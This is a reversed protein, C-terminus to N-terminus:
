VEAEWVADANRACSGVDMSEVWGDVLRIFGLMGWGDIWGDM